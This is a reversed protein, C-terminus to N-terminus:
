NKTKFSEEIQAKIRTNLALLEDRPMPHMRKDEAFYRKLMVSLADCEGDRKGKEHM